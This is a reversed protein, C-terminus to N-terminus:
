DRHGRTNGIRKFILVIPGPFFVSRFRFIEEGASVSEGFREGRRQCIRTDSLPCELVGSPVVTIDPLFEPMEASLERNIKQKLKKTKRSCTPTM